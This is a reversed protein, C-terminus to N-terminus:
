EIECAHGIKESACKEMFSIASVKGVFCKWGVNLADIKSFGAVLVALIQVFLSLKHITRILSSM